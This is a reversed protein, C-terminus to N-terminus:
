WPIKAWLLYCSIRGWTKSRSKSSIASWASPSCMCLARSLSHKKLPCHSSASLLQPHKGMLTRAILGSVSGAQAEQIGMEYTFCSFSQWLLVSFGSGRHVCDGLWFSRWPSIRPGPWPCLLFPITPRGASAVALGSGETRSGPRPPRDFGLWACLAHQSGRRPLAPRSPNHGPRRARQLPFRM